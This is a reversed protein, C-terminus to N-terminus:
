ALDYYIGLKKQRPHLEGVLVVQKLHIRSLPGLFQHNQVVREKKDTCNMLSGSKANPAKLM